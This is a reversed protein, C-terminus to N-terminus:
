TGGTGLLRLAGISAEVGNGGNNLKASAIVARHYSVEAANYAAQAAPGTALGQIAAQRAVEAALCAANHVLNDSKVVGGM